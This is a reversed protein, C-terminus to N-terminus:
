GKQCSGRDKWLQISLLSAWFLPFPQHTHGPTLPVTHYFCIACLFCISLYKSLNHIPPFGKWIWQPATLPSRKFKSYLALITDLVPCFVSIATMHKKLFIPTQFGSRYMCLSWLFGLCGGSFTNDSAKGLKHRDQQSLHSLFLRAGCSTGPVGEGLVLLVLRGVM